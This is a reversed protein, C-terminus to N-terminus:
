RPAWWDQQPRWPTAPRNERRATLSAIESLSFDVCAAHNDRCRAMCYFIQQFTPFDACVNTCRTFNQSCQHLTVRAEAPSFPDASTLAMSGLIAAVILRRSKCVLMQMDAERSNLSLDTRGRVFFALPSEGIFRGMLMSSTQQIEYFSPLSRNPL